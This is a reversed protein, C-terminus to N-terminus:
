HAKIRLASYQSVTWSHKRRIGLNYLRWQLTNTNGLIFEIFMTYMDLDQDHFCLTHYSFLVYPRIDSKKKSDRWYLLADAGSIDGNWRFIKKPFM